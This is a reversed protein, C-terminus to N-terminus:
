PTTIKDAENQTKKETTNRKKKDTNEGLGQVLINKCDEILWDLM